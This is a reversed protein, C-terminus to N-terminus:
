QYYIRKVRGSVSTLLEYPITGIWKALDTVPLEPGFVIVEDDLDVASGSVDLMSMDMCIDGVVPFLKGNIMMKGVGNGFRRDYGDAYGIDVTAILRKKSSKGGRNYGVSEDAEIEKIQSIRSKLSGAHMLRVQIIGTSDIGYLGLGLRVMDMQDDPFRIMGASNLVHRIVGEDTNEIIKDSMEKFIRNQQQSFDDYEKSDSASLHSFVSAVKIRKENKILSLLEEIDKSEFGLRHMGTDLKLHIKVPDAPEMRNLAQQFSRFHELSYIEAELNYRILMDFSEVDPSMVMIPLNVGKKRLELGEDAYAVALYDVRNFELFRAVEVDGSGYAFAKVMVMIKTGPKIVSHYVMLNNSLANLDIELRTRHTRQELRKGIDEFRFKRAGKLLITENSFQSPEFSQLFDGTDKFFSMELEGNSKFLEQHSLLGEGIGVLKKIKNSRVLGAVEEYLSNEDRGSQLIDSLILTNKKQQKQQGLFDLAIRLSELDSNYSDNILTCNNVAEKLELRMAIKGLTSMRQAIIDNAYGLKLMLCWCNVANEISAEDTFPINITITESNYEGQIELGPGKRNESIIKLSASSDRSWTFLELSTDEFTELVLDHLQKDDKCCILSKSDKFLKLKQLTKEKVDKFGEDHAPGINTLIGHDPKIMVQLKEMENPLSIGAEFVGIEHMNNINWLSLPVGTQSNYSKPSRVVNQDVSLLQFMWEKVTTKGNSGTIAIIPIEFRNRHHSALRQLAALTNDVMLVNAEDLGKIDTGKEVVFCRVKRKYLDKLYRHGDHRQGRLAFFLSHEPLSVKRSDLLLSDVPQEAHLQVLEGEIINALESIKYGEANM